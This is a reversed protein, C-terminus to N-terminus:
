TDLSTGTSPFQRARAARACFCGAARGATGHRSDRPNELLNTRKIGTKRFRDRAAGNCAAITDTPGIHSAPIGVIM